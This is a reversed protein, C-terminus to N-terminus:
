RQGLTLNIGGLLVFQTRDHILIKAEAFPHIWGVRSELGGLLNAGIDTNSVDGVNSNVIGLGAGVYFQPGTATSRPLMVKVDGNFGVRNGQEPTYIDLSPYFEIHSTMPVTLNASLLVEELDFNYGVRMGIHTSAQAGAGSVPLVALLTALIAARKVIPRLQM